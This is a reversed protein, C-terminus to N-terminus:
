VSIDYKLQVQIVIEFLVLYGTSAWMSGNWESKFEFVYNEVETNGM